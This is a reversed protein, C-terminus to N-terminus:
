KDNDKEKEANAAKEKEAKAKQARSAIDFMLPFERTEIVEQKGGKGNDKQKKVDARIKAKEVRVKEPKAAVSFAILVAVIFIASRM